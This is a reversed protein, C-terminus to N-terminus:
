GRGIEFGNATGSYYAVFGYNGNGYQVLDVGDKIALCQIADYVNWHEEREDSFPSDFFHCLVENALSSTDIGLEACKAEQGEWLRESWDAESSWHEDYVRCNTIVTYQPVM